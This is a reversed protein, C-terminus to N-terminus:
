LHNEWVKYYDSYDEPTTMYRYLNQRPMSTTYFNNLETWNEANRIDETIWGEAMWRWKPESMDHIELPVLRQLYHCSAAWFNGGYFRKRPLWWSGCGYMGKIIIQNICIHPRELLFYEM